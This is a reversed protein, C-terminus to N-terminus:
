GAMREAKKMLPGPLCVESIEWTGKIPDGSKPVSDEGIFRYYTQASIVLSMIFLLISIKILKM